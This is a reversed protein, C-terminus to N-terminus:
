FANRHTVRSCYTGSAENLNDWEKIAQSMKGPQVRKCSRSASFHVRSRLRGRITADPRLFDRRRKKRAARIYRYARSAGAPSIAAVMFGRRELSIVSGGSFIRPLKQKDLM